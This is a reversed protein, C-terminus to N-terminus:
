GSNYNLDCWILMWYLMTVKNDIFCSSFCTYMKCTYLFLFISFDCLSKQREPQKQLLQMSNLKLYLRGFKPWKSLMVMWIQKYFTLLLLGENWELCQIHCIWVYQFLELLSDTAKVRGYSWIRKWKYKKKTIKKM